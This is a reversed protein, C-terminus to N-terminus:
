LCSPSGNFTEPIIEHAYSIFIAEGRKGNGRRRGIKREEHRSLNRTIGNERRRRLADRTKNPM